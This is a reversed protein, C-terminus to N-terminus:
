RRAAFACWSSLYQFSSSVNRVAAGYALESTVQQWGNRSVWLAIRPSWYMTSFSKTSIKAVRWTAFPGVKAGDNKLDVIIQSFGAHRNESPALAGVFSTTIVTRM